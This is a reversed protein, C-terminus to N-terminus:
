EEFYWISDTQRLLRALTPVSGDLVALLGKGEVAVAIHRPIEIIGADTMVTRPSNRAFSLVGKEVLDCMNVNGQPDAHERLAECVEPDHIRKM